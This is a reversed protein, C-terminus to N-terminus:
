LIYVVEWLGYVHTHVYDLIREIKHTAIKFQVKKQKGFVYYKFFELKCTKIGTMTLKRKHLKMMGCEGM